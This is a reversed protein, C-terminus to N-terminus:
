FKPTTKYWESIYALGFYGELPDIGNPPFFPM